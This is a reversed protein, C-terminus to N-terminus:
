VTAAVPDLAMFKHGYVNAAAASSIQYIRLLADWVAAKSLPLAAVKKVLNYQRIHFKEHIFGLDEFQKRQSRKEKEAQM